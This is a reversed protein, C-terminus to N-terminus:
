KEYLIIIIEQVTQVAAWLDPLLDTVIDSIIAPLIGGVFTLLLAGMQSDDLIYIVMLYICKKNNLSRSKNHFTNLIFYIYSDLVYFANM